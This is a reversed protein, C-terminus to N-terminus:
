KFNEIKFFTPLKNPKKESLELMLLLGKSITPPVGQKKWNLITQKNKLTGFPGGM